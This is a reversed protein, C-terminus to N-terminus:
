TIDGLGPLSPESLISKVLISLTHGSLRQTMNPISLFALIDPFIFAHIGGVKGKIDWIVIVM